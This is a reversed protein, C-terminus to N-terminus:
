FALDLHAVEKTGPGAPKEDNEDLDVLYGSVSRRKPKHRMEACPRPTSAVNSVGIPLGPSDRVYGTAHSSATKPDTSDGVHGARSPSLHSSLNGLQIPKTDEPPHASSLKRLRPPIPVPPLDGHSPVRRHGPSGIRNALRAFVHPIHKDVTASSPPAPLSVISSSSSANSLPPRSPVPPFPYEFLSTTDTTFPTGILPQAPQKPIDISLRVRSPDDLPLELPTPVGESSASDEFLSDRSFSPKALSLPPM